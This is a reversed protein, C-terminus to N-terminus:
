IVQYTIHILHFNKGTYAQFYPRLTEVPSGYITQSHTNIPITRVYLGRKYYCLPNTNQETVIFEHYKRKYKKNLCM